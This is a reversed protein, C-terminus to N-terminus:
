LWRRPNGFRKVHTLIGNIQHLTTQSSCNGFYRVLAPPMRPALLATPPLPTGLTQQYMQPVNTKLLPVDLLYAEAPHNQVTPYPRREGLAVCGMVKRYFSSHRPNVTIVWTDAGQTLFYQGMLRMLSVFIPIFERISLGNDALNTVEGIRRNARRLEAIKDGYISEMPLGLYVNDLVLSMTAIVRGECRAVYTTTDPLAHYPTFRLGTGNAPKYGRSRYNEAILQFAAEWEARESAIKVDIERSVGPLRVPCPVDVVTSGRPCPVDFVTDHPHGLFPAAVQATTSCSEPNHVRESRTRTTM